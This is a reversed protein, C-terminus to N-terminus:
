PTQAVLDPRVHQLWWVAESNGNPSPVRKLVTRWVKWFRTLAGRKHTAKEDTPWVFEVRRTRGGMTIELVCGAFHDFESDSINDPLGFFNAQQFIAALDRLDEQSLTFSKSVRRVSTGSGIISIEQVAKGDRGIRLRWPKSGEYDVLGAGPFFAARVSFDTPPTAASGDRLFVIAVFVLYFCRLGAGYSRRRKM